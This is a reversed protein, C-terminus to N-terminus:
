LRLHREHGSHGEDRLAHHPRDSPEARHLCPRRGRLCPLRIGYQITLRAIPDTNDSCWIQPCYALMGADFRGGGGACGEFLVDPFARTLRDMLDYLGLVYRHALEGQRDAPLAASYLDTLHRNMDWKIYSIPLNSLLGSLTEFLWDVIEERSLDLVLQNRSIAPQRGPVRLAWDPHARFLESDESVMEPEVWLGVKLGMDAIKNLLTDFGHPLKRTNPFWDGLSTHDDDRHGFWGDDIVLMDVGLEKTERALGLLKDEDFDFYM